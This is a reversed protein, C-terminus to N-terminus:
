RRKKRGSSKRKKSSGLLQQEETRLRGQLKRVDEAAPLEEPRIGRKALAGRIERNNGAHETTISRESRLDRERVRITTM